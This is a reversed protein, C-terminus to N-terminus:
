TSGPLANARVQTLREVFPADLSISVHMTKGCEGLRYTADVTSEPLAGITRLAIVGTAAHWAHAEVEDFGIFRRLAPWAAKYFAEKAAFLATTKVLHDPGQLWASREKPNCCVAAVAQQTTPDVIPESDIGIGAGDNRRVVMAHASLDAHTISGAVGQPWLPEGDPGRPVSCTSFGLLQLSREACVRGGIWALQRRRVTRHITVPLLSGLDLGSVAAELAALGVSAGQAGPLATWHEPPRCLAALAPAKVLLANPDRHMTHSHAANDCAGTTPEGLLTAIMAAISGYESCAVQLYPLRAAAFDLLPQHMNDRALYLPNLLAGIDPM